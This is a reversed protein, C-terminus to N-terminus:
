AVRSNQRRWSSRVALVLNWLCGNLLVTTNLLPYPIGGGSPIGVKVYHHPKHPWMIGLAISSTTYAVTLTEWTLFTL